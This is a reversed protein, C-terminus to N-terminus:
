ALAFPGIKGAELGHRCRRDRVSLICDSRGPRPPSYSQERHRNNRSLRNREANLPDM